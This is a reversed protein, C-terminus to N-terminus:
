QEVALALPLENRLWSTIDMWRGVRTGDKLTAEITGRSDIFYGSNENDSYGRGGFHTGTPPASYEDAWHLIASGIDLGETRSRDLLPPDGLLSQPIGYCHM